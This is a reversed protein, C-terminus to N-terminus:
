KWIMYISCDITLILTDLVAYCNIHFADSLMSGLPFIYQFVQHNYRGYFILTYIHIFYTITSKEMEKYKIMLIFKLSRLLLWFAYWQALKLLIQIVFSYFIEMNWLKFPSWNWVLHMIFIQHYMQYFIFIRLQHIEKM